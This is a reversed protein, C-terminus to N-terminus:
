RSAPFPPAQGSEAPEADETGCEERTSCTIVQELEPLDSPSIRRRAVEVVDAAIAEMQESFPLISGALVAGDARGHDQHRAPVSLPEIQIMQM